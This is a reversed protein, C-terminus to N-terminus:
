RLPKPKRALLFAQPTSELGDDDADRVTCAYPLLGAASLMVEVAEPRRRHFELDVSMGFAETLLRPRDGVQFALLALGGPALV